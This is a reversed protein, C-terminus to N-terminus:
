GGGGTGDAAAPRPIYEGADLRRILEANARNLGSVQLRSLCAVLFLGGLPLMGLLAWKGAECRKALCLGGALGGNAAVLCASICVAATQFATSQPQLDARNFNDWTLGNRRAEEAQQALEQNRIELGHERLALMCGVFATLRNM